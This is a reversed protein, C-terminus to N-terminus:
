IAMKSLLGNTMVPPHKGDMQPVGLMWAGEERLGVIAQHQGEGRDTILLNHRWQFPTRRM